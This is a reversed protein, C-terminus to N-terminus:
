LVNTVSGFGKSARVRASLSKALYKTLYPASRKDAIKCVSFGSRWAGTLHKWRVPKDASQEYILAHWHPAGSKHAECVALYRIPAESNKRVRKLWATLERGSITARRKFQEDADLLDFDEPLAEARAMSLVRFQSSPDFTLTVFWVRSAGSFEAAARLRWSAARKALCAGCRRCRLHMRLGLPQARGPEYHYFKTGWDAQPRGYLTHIHPRECDGSAHWETWIMSVRRAGAQLARSCLRVMRDYDTLRSM